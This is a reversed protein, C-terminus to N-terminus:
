DLITHGRDYRTAELCSTEAVLRDSQVRGRGLKACPHFNELESFLPRELGVLVGAGLLDEDVKALVFRWRRHPATGGQEAPLSETSSSGAILTPL